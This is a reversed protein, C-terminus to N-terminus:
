WRATRREHGDTGSRSALRDVGKYIVFPILAMLWYGVTQFVIFYRGIRYNTVPMSTVKWSYVQLNLSETLIGAATVAVLLAWVFAWKESIGTRKFLEIGVILVAFHYYLAVAWEFLYKRLQDSRGYHPYEWYGARMGIQDIGISVILMVICFIALHVVQWENFIRRNSLWHYICSLLLAMGISFLTYFSALGLATLQYFSVGTCILGAILPLIDRRRM